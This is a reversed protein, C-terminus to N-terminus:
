PCQVEGNEGMPDRKQAFGLAREYRYLAKVMTAPLRHPMFRFCSLRGYFPNRAGFFGDHATLFDPTGVMVKTKHLEGNLYLEVERKRVCVVLHMWHGVPVNRLEVYDAMKITKTNPQAKATRCVGLRDWNIEGEGGGGGGHNAFGEVIGSEMINDVCTSPLTLRTNIVVRLNNQVDSFWVGPNQEKPTDWDVHPCNSIGPLKEGRYFISKWKKFGREYWDALYLWMSYSYGPGASQLKAHSVRRRDIVGVIENVYRSYCKGCDVYRYWHRRQVYWQWLARAGFVLLLVAVVIWITVGTSVVVAKAAGGVRHVARALPGADTM